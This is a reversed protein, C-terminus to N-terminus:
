DCGAYAGDTVPIPANTPMMMCCMLGDILCCPYASVPQPTATAFTITTSEHTSM